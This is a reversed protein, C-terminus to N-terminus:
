SQAHLIFAFTTRALLPHHPQEWLLSCSGRGSQKAKQLTGTSEEWRPTSDVGGEGLGCGWDSSQGVSHLLIHCQDSHSQQIKTKSPGAAETWARVMYFLEASVAPHHCFLLFLGRQHSILGWCGAGLAWVRSHSRPQGPDEM